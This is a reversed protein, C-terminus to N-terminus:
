HQAVEKNRISDDFIGWRFACGHRVVDLRLGFGVLGVFWFGLLGLFDGDAGDIAAHHVHQGSLLNHAIGLNRLDIAPQLGLDIGALDYDNYLLSV